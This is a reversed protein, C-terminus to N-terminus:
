KNLEAILTGQNPVTVMFEVPYIKSMTDIMDLLQLNAGGLGSVHEVMMVKLKQDRNM